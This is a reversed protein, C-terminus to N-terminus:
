RLGMFYDAWWRLDPLRLRPRPIRRFAVIRLMGGVVIMAAALGLPGRVDFGTFPLTPAATGSSVSAGPSSGAGSLSGGSPPGNLAAATNAGASLSSLVVAGAPCGVRAVVGPGWAEGPSPLDAQLTHCGPPYRLSLTGSGSAKGYTSHSARDFLYLTGNPPVGSATVATSGFTITESAGALTTSGGWALGGLLFAALGLGFRRLSSLKWSRPRASPQSSWCDGAIRLLFLTELEISAELIM